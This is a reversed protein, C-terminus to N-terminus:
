CPEILLLEKVLLNTFIKYQVSGPLHEWEHFVEKKKESYRNRNYIIISGIIKTTQGYAISRTGNQATVGNSWQM